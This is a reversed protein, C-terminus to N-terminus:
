SLVSGFVDFFIVFITHTRLSLAMALSGHGDGGVCSSHLLATGCSGAQLLTVGFAVGRFTSGCSGARFSLPFPLTISTVFMGDDDVDIVRIGLVDVVAHATLGLTTVCSGVTPLVLWRM